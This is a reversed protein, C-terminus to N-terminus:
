GEQNSDTKRSKWITANNRFRGYGCQWVDGTWSGGANFAYGTFIGRFVNTGFQHVRGQDTSSTPFFKVEAEFPIIPWEVHHISGVNVFLRDMQWYTKCMEFIAIVSWQKQGGVKKFYLSFWYQRLAMKWEDYLENQLELKNRIQAAYIEWSELEAGRLCEYVGSFRWYLPIKPKRRPTLNNSSTEPDESSIHDQMSIKSDLADCFEQVVVAYKHHLRSGQEDNLAKHDATIRDGYRDAILIRDARDDLNSKGPARTAKTRGCMEPRQSCSHLFQAKRRQCAQSLWPFTTETKVSSTEGMRSSIHHSVQIGNM